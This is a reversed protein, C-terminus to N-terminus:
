DESRLCSRHKYFHDTLENNDYGLPFFAMGTMNKECLFNMKQRLTWWDDFWGEIWPGNQALNFKYYASGTWPDHIAGYQQVRQSISTRLDPLLSKPLNAFTTTTGNGLTEAFAEAAKVQWEYGYLPFSFLTDANTLELQERLQYLKEWTLAFDGRLPANPGARSAGSWHADYAQFVVAQLQKLTSPEYLPLASGVPYFVSLQRPPSLSSLQKALEKVIVQYNKVAQKTAGSYVEIDLHIGSVGDMKSLDFVTEKFQKSSKNSSFLQNFTDAEFLTLTLDLPKNAQRAAESLPLWREPWGNFDAVQGQKDIHISFFLLRDIKELKSEQWSQGMWYAVYAWSKLDTQAVAIKSFCLLLGGLFVALLHRTVALM